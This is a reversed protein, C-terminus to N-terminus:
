GSSSSAKSVQRRLRPPAATPDRGAQVLDFALRWAAHAQEVSMAPYVGLTMRHLKARGNKLRFFYVWVKRGGASVRLALGPYSSDFYDARGSKVAFRGAAAGTITKHRPM